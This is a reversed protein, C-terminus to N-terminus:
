DSFTAKATKSKRASVSQRLKKPLKGHSLKGITERGNFDLDPQQQLRPAIRSCFEVLTRCGTARSRSVSVPQASPSVAKVKPFGRYFAASTSCVM